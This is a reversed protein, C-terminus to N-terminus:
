TREPQSKLVLGYIVAVWIKERIVILLFSSDHTWQPDWRGGNLNWEPYELTVKFFSYMQTNQLTPSPCVPKLTFLQQSPITRMTYTYGTCTHHHKTLETSESIFNLHRLDSLDTTKLSLERERSTWEWSFAFFVVQSLLHLKM